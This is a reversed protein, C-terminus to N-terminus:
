RMCELCHKACMKVLRGIASMGLYRRRQKMDICFIMKANISHSFTCALVAVDTHPSKIAICDYGNSPAHSTHLLIRTDAEEQQTCLEDLRNCDIGNEGATLKHCEM